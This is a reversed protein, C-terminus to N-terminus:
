QFSCCWMLHTGCSLIVSDCVPQPKCPGRPVLAAGASVSLASHGAGCGPPKQPDVHVFSWLKQAVQALAAAGACFHKGTNLCCRRNEMGSLPLLFFFNQLAAWFAQLVGARALTVVGFYWDSILARKLATLGPLGATLAGTGPHTHLTAGPARSAAEHCARKLLSPSSVLKQQLLSPYLHAAASRYDLLWLIFGEHWLEGLARSAGLVFTILCM